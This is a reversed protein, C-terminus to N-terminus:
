DDKLIEDLVGQVTGDFGKGYHGKNHEIIIKANFKERLVDASRLPILKDNDSFFGIISKTSKKVKESDLQPEFFKDAIKRENENLNTIENVVPAVVIAKHIKDEDMILNLYHFIALGGLSHGVLITDESSSTVSLSLYKAWEMIDPEETNPMTLAYVIFNRSELEKKLWPFFSENPNGGWGHILYVCKKM